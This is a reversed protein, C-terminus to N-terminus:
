KKIFDSILYSILKGTQQTERADEPNPAAECIHIYSATKMAGLNHIMRRVETSSFGSPTMASSPVNEIADCDIEIGFNNGCIFDRIKEFARTEDVTKRLKLSEFTAYKVRRDKEMLQFVAKSTYNEHIGYIFYNKLFGEKMAFTFGNGSHRGERDRLDTHADINIANVSRGLGLAVGKIIGYANNHGGGIVVPIKGASVITQIIFVVEKDITDTFKRAVKVKELPDKDLKELAEMEKSFDLYGMLFMKSEKLYSTYQINLLSRLGTEWAYRTGPKGLNGVVGLDEPIGLLVFRAKSARLQDGIEMDPSPLEIKEGFKTEGKRKNIYTNIEKHSYTKLYQYM